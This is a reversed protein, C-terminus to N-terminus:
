EDEAESRLIIRKSILDNIDKKSFGNSSLIEETNSGIGPAIGKLPIGGPLSAIPINGLHPQYVESYANIANVHPDKLWDGLSNVPSTLIGEETFLKLWENSTKSKIKSQIIEMLSHKNKARNKFSSFRRDGALNPERIIKCLNAFQEEKVLTVAIWGDSTQYTGAPVNLLVPPGGSIFFDAINPALLNAASQLLSLDLLKAERVGGFLEMSVAQFACLGTIVDVVITGVKQPIDDKDRNLSVLGSFAQLVTDSGPRDSYPGTQGFGSVSAYLVKSNLARVDEFGIGLRDVVGPRFNELVVDSNSALKLIVDLGEKTKLDIAIGKKGLNYYISYATQDGKPAGLGRAWDGNIPEVKIVEAGYQALLLGCYPAAVGQGLDLVKIGYLPKKNM